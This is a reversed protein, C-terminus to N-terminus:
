LEVFPKLVRHSQETRKRKKVAGLVVLTVETKCGTIVAQVKCARLAWLDQRVFEVCYYYM